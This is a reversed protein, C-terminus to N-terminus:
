NLHRKSGNDRRPEEDSSGQIVRIKGSAQLQKLLHKLKRNESYGPAIESVLAEFPEYGRLNAADATRADVLFSEGSGKDLSVGERAYALALALLNEDTFREPAEQYIAALTATLPRFLVAGGAVIEALPAQWVPDALDETLAPVLIQALLLGGSVSSESTLGQARWVQGIMVFAAQAAGSPSYPISYRAHIDANWAACKAAITPDVFVSPDAGLYRGFDLGESFTAVTTNFCRFLPEALSGDANLQPPDYDGAEM